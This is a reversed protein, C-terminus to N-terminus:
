WLQGRCYNIHVIKKGCDAAPVICDISKGLASMYLIWNWFAQSHETSTDVAWYDPVVANCTDKSLGSVYRIGDTGIHVTKPVGMTVWIPPQQAHVPSWIAGLMGTMIFAVLLFPRKRNTVYQYM